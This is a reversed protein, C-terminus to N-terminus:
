ASTNYFRIQTSMNNLRNFEYADKINNLTSELKNLKNDIM